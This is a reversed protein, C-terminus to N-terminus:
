KAGNYHRLEVYMKTQKNTEGILVVSPIVSVVAVVVASPVVLTTASVVVVATNAVM